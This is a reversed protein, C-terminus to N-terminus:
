IGHLGNCNESQCPCQITFKEDTVISVDTFDDTAYPKVTKEQNFLGNSKQGTLITNNLKSYSEQKGRNKWNIENESNYNYISDHKLLSKSCQNNPMCERVSVKGDKSILEFKSLKSQAKNASINKDCKTARRPSSKEYSSSSFNKCKAKSISRTIRNQREESKSDFEYDHPNENKINSKDLNLKNTNKESNQSFSIKDNKRNSCQINLMCKQRKNVMEKVVMNVVKPKVKKAPLSVSGEVLKKKSEEVRVKKQDLNDLSFEKKDYHNGKHKFSMINLNTILLKLVHKENVETIKQLEEAIRSSNQINNIIENKRGKLYHDYKEVFNILRRQYMKVRKKEQTREYVNIIKKLIEEKKRIKLKEYKMLQEEQEMEAISGIKKTARKTTKEYPIKAKTNVSVTVPSANQIGKANNDRTTLSQLKELAEPRMVVHMNNSGIINSNNVISMKMKEMADASIRIVKVNNSNHSTPIIIRKDSSKKNNVQFHISTANQEEINKNHNIKIKKPSNSLVQLHKLLVFGKKMCEHYVSDPLKQLLIGPQSIKINQMKKKSASDAGKKRLAKTLNNSSLIDKQNAKSECLVSIKPLIKRLNCESNRSFTTLNPSSSFSTNSSISDPESSANQTINDSSIIQSRQSNSVQVNPTVGKADVKTFKMTPAATLKDTECSASSKSNKKTDDGDSTHESNLNSNQVNFLPSHSTVDKIIIKSFQASSIVNSNVINSPNSKILANKANNSIQILKVNPNSKNFSLVQSSPMIQQLIVKSFQKASVPSNTIQSAIPKLTGSSTSIVQINQDSKQPNHIQVNPLIDKIFVKSSQASLLSPSTIKSSPNQVNSFNLNNQMVFTDAPLVSGSILQQGIQFLGGSQLDIVVKKDKAEEILNKEMSPESKSMMKDSTKDNIYNKPLTSKSDVIQVNKAEEITTCSAQPIKTAVSGKQENKVSMKSSSNATKVKKTRQQHIIKTCHSNRIQLTKLEKPIADDVQIIETSVPIKNLLEHKLKDDKLKESQSNLSGKTVKLAQVQNPKLSDLNIIVCEKDNKSEPNFVIKGIKKESCSNNSYDTCTRKLSKSSKATESYKENEKVQPIHYVSKVKVIKFSDGSSIPTSTIKPYFNLNKSPKGEEPQVKTVSSSLNSSKLDSTQAIMRERFLNTVGINEAPSASHLVRM